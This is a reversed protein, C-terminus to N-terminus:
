AAVDRAEERPARAAVPKSAYVVLSKGIVPDLARELLRVPRAAHVMDWVLFRHYLRALPHEDRTVGVTCKLWWYPTHLAHVHDHGTVELGAARLRADVDRRRYIRV